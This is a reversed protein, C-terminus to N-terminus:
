RSSILDGGSELAIRVLPEPPKLRVTGLYLRRRGQRLLDRLRAYGAPDNFDSKYPENTPDFDSFLYIADVDPHTQLAQELVHLGNNAPGTASFGFGDTNSRNAVTIGAKQLDTTRNSLIAETGRMSGSTDVLLLVNTGTFRRGNMVATPRGFRSHYNLYANNLYVIALGLLLWGAGGSIFNGFAPVPRAYREWRREDEEM